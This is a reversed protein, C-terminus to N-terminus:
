HNGTWRNPLKDRYVRACRGQAEVTADAIKRRSLDLTIIGCRSIDELDGIKCTLRSDLPRMTGHENGRAFKGGSPAALRSVFPLSIRGAILETDSAGGGLCRYATDRHNRSWLNKIAGGFRGRSSVGAANAM